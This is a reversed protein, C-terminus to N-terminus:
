TLLDEASSRNNYPITQAQAEKISPILHTHSVGSYTRYENPVCLTNTPNNGFSYGM